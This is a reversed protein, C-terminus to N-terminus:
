EQRTTGLRPGALASGQSGHRCFGPKLIAELYPIVAGGEFGLFVAAFRGAADRTVISDYGSSPSANAGFDAASACALSVLVAAFAGAASAAPNFRGGM